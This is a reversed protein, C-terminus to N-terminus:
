TSLLPEVIETRVAQGDEYGCVGENGYVDFPLPDEGDFGRTFGYRYGETLGFLEQAAGGYGQFGLRDYCLAGLACAGRITEGDDEYNYFAGVTVGFGTREYAGKVQEVTIRNM